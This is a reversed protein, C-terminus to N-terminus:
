QHKESLFLMFFIIKVYTKHAVKDVPRESENLPFSTYNLTHGCKHSCMKLARSAHPFMM